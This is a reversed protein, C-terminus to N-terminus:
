VMLQFNDIDLYRGFKVGVQCIRGCFQFGFREHLHISAENGATIVSVVTHIKPNERAEKLVAEMLKGAIGQKRYEPHIYVSLEVTAEYAEKDRYPSLSAYGAVKGDKVAVLLPHVSSSHEKFWSEREEETKPYIDFTAVGNEVEYNYIYTLEKIDRKEAKRIMIDM